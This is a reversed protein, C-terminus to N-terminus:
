IFNCDQGMLILANEVFYYIHSDFKEIEYKKLKFKSKELFKNGIMKILLGTKNQAINM